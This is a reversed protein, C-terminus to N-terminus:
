YFLLGHGMEVFSICTACVNEGLEISRVPRVLLDAFLLTKSVSTDDNGPRRDLWFDRLEVSPLGEHELIEGPLRVMGKPAKDKEDLTFSRFRMPGGLDSAVEVPEFGDREIRLRLNGFPVRLAKFPTRGLPEWPADPERYPKMRVTAGPPNTEVTLPLTHDVFFRHLAANGPLHPLAQRALLFARYDDEQDVLRTIEPVAVDRAWRPGSGRMWWWAALGLAVVVTAAAVTAQRRRLGASRVRAIAQAGGGAQAEELEVRAEAVDRLRGERDKTLCRELLRRIGAPVTGPLASWDPEHELVAALTDSPTARGFAPRDTLMEYLVCGFSWIDTRADTELGRAQEPSMYATTGVVAGTKTQALAQRASLDGAAASYKAIGFDLVKVLGDPRVM